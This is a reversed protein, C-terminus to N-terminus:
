SSAYISEKQISANPISLHFEVQIQDGFLIHTLDEWQNIQIMPTDQYFAYSNWLRGWVELLSVADEEAINRAYKLLNGEREVYIDYCNGRIGIGISKNTSYATVSLTGDEGMFVDTSNFGAKWAHENIKKARASIGKMYQPTIEYENIAITTLRDIKKIVDNKKPM